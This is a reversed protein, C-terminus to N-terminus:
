PPVFSGMFPADEYIFLWLSLSEQNEVESAWSSKGTSCWDRTGPFSCQVTKIKYLSQELPNWKSKTKPGGTQMRKLGIGITSMPAMLDTKLSGGLNFWQFNWVRSVQTPYDVCCRPDGEGWKAMHFNLKQFHPYLIWDHVAFDAFNLGLNPYM